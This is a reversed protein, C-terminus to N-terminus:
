TRKRLDSWALELSNRHEPADIAILAQARADSLTASPWAAPVAFVAAETYRMTASCASALNPTRNPLVRISGNVDIGFTNFPRKEM